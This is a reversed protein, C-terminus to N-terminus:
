CAGASGGAGSIESPFGMDVTSVNGDKSNNEHFHLKSEKEEGKGRESERVAGGEKKRESVPKMYGLSAQPHDQRESRGTELEGTNPNYM